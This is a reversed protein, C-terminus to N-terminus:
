FMTKKRAANLFFTLLDQRQYTAGWLEEELGGLIMKMQSSLDKSCRCSGRWRGAKSIKSGNWEGLIGIELHFDKNGKEIPWYENPVQMLTLVLICYSHYSYSMYERDTAVSKQKSTKTNTHGILCRFQCPVRFFEVDFGVSILFSSSCAPARCFWTTPLLSQFLSWFSFPQLM